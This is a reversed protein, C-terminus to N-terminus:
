SINFIKHSVKFFFKSLSIFKIFINVLINLYLPINVLRETIRYEKLWIKLEAYIEDLDDNSMNSKIIKEVWTVVFESVISIYDANRELCLKKAKNLPNLGNNFFDEKSVEKHSQSDDYIFYKYGSYKTLVIIGNAKLFCELSFLFDEGWHGEVFSIGNKLIFDKKYIKNWITLNAPTYIIQPLEFINKIEINSDFKDIFNNNLHENGNECVTFRSSVLDVDKASIENYMVECFDNKYFDDQDCFMIYDASAEKIGLNRPRGPRKSNKELFVPKVNEYKHSYEELIERSRDRSKDDAIVLEINEFGITQEKMSDILNPIDKEGNFNTIIISVLYSM